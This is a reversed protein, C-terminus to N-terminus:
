FVPIEKHIAKTTSINALYASIIKSATANLIVVAKPNLKEIILKLLEIQSEGFKNLKNKNSDFGTTSLMM